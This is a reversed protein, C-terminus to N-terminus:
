WGLEKMRQQYETGMVVFYREANTFLPTELFKRGSGSSTYQRVPHSGDARVGEHQYAAYPSNFGIVAVLMELTLQNPTIAGALSEIVPTADPATHGLDKSTAKLDGDVHVSGSGRLTGEMYPVQPVENISDDLLALAAVELAHKAATRTDKTFRDLNDGMDGTITMSM